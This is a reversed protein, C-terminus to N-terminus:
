NIISTSRDSDNENNNDNSVDDMIQADDDALLPNALKLNQYKATVVRNRYVALVIVAILTVLVIAAIVPIYISVTMSNCKESIAPAMYEGYCAVGEKKSTRIYKYGGECKTEIVAYDSSVCSRCAFYTTWTFDLHSENAFKLIPYGTGVNVNCVFDIHTSRSVSTGDVYVEDGDFFDLSINMDSKQTFMLNTGFNVYDVGNPAVRCIHFGSSANGTSGCLGVPFKGTCISMYISSGDTSRFPGQTEISFPSLDYSASESTFSCTTSCSTSGATSSSGAYCKKCHTSGEFRSFQGGFCMSCTGGARPNASGAPCPECSLQDDAAEYGAPCEYNVSEGDKLGSIQVNRLYFRAENSTTTSSSAYYTLWALSVSGRPLDVNFKYWHVDDNGVVVDVSNIIPTNVNDNDNIGRLSNYDDIFNLMVRDGNLFLFVNRDNRVTCAIEFSLTGLPIVIEGNYTLISKVESSTMPIVGSDVFGERQRWGLGSTSWGAPLEKGMRAGEGFFVKSYIAAHGSAPVVCGGVSENYVKGEPCGVCEGSNNADRSMGVPCPACEVTANELAAPTYSSSDCVSPQALAWERTVLGNVCSGYVLNWDAATCAVRKHCTIGDYTYEDAACAVCKSAGSPAAAISGSPCPTCLSGGSEAMFTGPPCSSCSTPSYKDGLITVTHLEVAAFDESDVRRSDPRVFRWQLIHGGSSLKHTFTDYSYTSRTTVNLVVEDDVSFEFHPKADSDIDSGYTYKVTESSPLYASYEFTVSGEAIFTSTYRLTSDYGYGSILYGNRARFPTCGSSGTCRNTFASPVDEFNDYYSGAGVSYKGAPCAACEGTTGDAYEGPPCVTEATCNTPVEENPPLEVGDHCARPNENWYYVKTRKNDKCETYYFSYDNETCVPCGYLSRWYFDYHCWPGEITEKEDPKAPFGVGADPTCIFTINTSRYETDCGFDGGTYELVFGHTSIAPDIPYYGAVMGLNKGTCTEEAPCNNLVQCALADISNGDGDICSVNSHKLSCINIFYQFGTGDYVPGYM